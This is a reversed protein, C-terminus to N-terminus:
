IAVGETPPWIAGEFRHRPLVHWFTLENVVERTTVVWCNLLVVSNILAYLHRTYLKSKTPGIVQM